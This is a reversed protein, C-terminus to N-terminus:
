ENINRIINEMKNSIDLLSEVYPNNSPLQGFNWEVEEDLKLDVIKQIIKAENVSLEVMM